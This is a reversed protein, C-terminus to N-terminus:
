EYTSLVTVDIDSSIKGGIYNGTIGYEKVKVIFNSKAIVKTGSVEITGNITVHRRLIASSQIDLYLVNDKNIITNETM